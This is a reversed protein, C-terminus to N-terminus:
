RGRDPSQRISRRRKLENRKLASIFEELVPTMSAGRRMLAGVERWMVPGKLSIKCVLPDDVLQAELDPIIAVGLGARTLAIATSILQAEFAARVHLRHKLFALDTLKRINSDRSMLILPADVLAPWDLMKPRKPFMSVPALAVLQDRFLPWLTLDDGHGIFAGIGVHADGSRVRAVIEDTLDDRIQVVANPAMKRLEVIAGPLLAASLTPLAAVTIRDLMALQGVSAALTVDELIREALPLFREGAETLQLPRSDRSILSIAISQELNKILLSLGPQTLGMTTAAATYNGRRCLQVFGQIQRLTISQM